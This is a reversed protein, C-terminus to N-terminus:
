ASVRAPTLRWLAVGFAAALPVLREVWDGPTDPLWYFVITLLFGTLISAFVGTQDPRRDLLTLVLVPGFASGVAHWAFLVRRFITDPLFLALAAATLALAAVVWRSGTLGAVTRSRAEGLDQSVASAAVLLQSDATSMIASLVAAIMVGALVPALLEGAAEFLVSEPAV